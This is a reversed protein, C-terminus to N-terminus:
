GGGNMAGKKKCKDCIRWRKTKTKSPCRCQEIITMCASCITMFHM